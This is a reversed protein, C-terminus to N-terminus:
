IILIFEMSEYLKSKASLKWKNAKSLGQAISLGLGSGGYERNRSNEGRYFREFVKNAQDDPIFSGTNFVSLTVKNEGNSILSVKIQGNDSSHKIANDLLITVIKKISASDGNASISPAVDIILEKKKEYAVADFSLAIDTVIESLNFTEKSLKFRGEDMKALDLMDAILVNLRETQSKINEVWQSDHIEKLVEANASIITTPTKLEHSADSIFRRQKIFTDKIPDLTRFSLVWVFVFSIFYMVLMPWILNIAGRKIELINETKDSAIFVFGNTESGFFKYYITGNNGFTVKNAKAHEYILNVKETNFFDNDFICIEGDILILKDNKLLSNTGYDQYVTYINTIEKDIYVTNQVRMIGYICAYLAIFVFLLISMFTIVFKIQAKRIM